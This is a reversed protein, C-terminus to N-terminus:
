TTEPRREENNQRAQNTVGGSALLFQFGLNGSGLLPNASGREKLARCGAEAFAYRNGTRCFTM